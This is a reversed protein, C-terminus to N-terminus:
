LYQSYNEILYNNLQYWLEVKRQDRKTSKLPFLGGEGKRNYKREIMINLVNDVYMSGGYEFYMDDTMKSLDLNDLMVKFWYALTDHGETDSILLSIKSVSVLAIM